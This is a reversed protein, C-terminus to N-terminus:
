MLEDEGTFLSNKRVAQLLWARTGGRDTQGRGETDVVAPGESCSMAATPEQDCEAAEKEKLKTDTM